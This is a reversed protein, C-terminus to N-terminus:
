IVCKSHKSRLEATKICFYFGLYVRKLSESARRHLLHNSIYVSPSQDGEGLGAERLACSVQLEAGHWGILARGSGSQRRSCGNPQRSHARLGEWEMRGEHGFVVCVQLLSQVRSEYLLSFNGFVWFRTLIRHQFQNLPFNLCITDM